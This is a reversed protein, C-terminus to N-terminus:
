IDDRNVVDRYNSASTPIGFSAAAEDALKPEIDCVAVLETRPDRAWGPLHAMQAWRGAGLMGVRVPRDVIPLVMGEEKDRNVKSSQTPTKGGRGCRGAM